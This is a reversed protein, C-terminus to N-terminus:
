HGKLYIAQYTQGQSLEHVKTLTPLGDLFAVLDALQRRRPDFLVIADADPMTREQRLHAAPLLLLRRPWMYYKFKGEYYWGEPDITPTIFLASGGVPVYHQAAQLVSYIRGDAYFRRDDESARYLGAAIVSGKWEARYLPIACIQWAAFWALYLWTRSTM